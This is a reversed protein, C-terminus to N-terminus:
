TGNIEVQCSLLTKLSFICGKGIMVVYWEEEGIENM